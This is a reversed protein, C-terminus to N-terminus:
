LGRHASFDALRRVYRSFESLFTPRLPGNPKTVKRCSIQCPSARHRVSQCSKTYRSSGLGLAGFGVGGSAAVSSATQSVTLKSLVSSNRYEASVKLPCRI